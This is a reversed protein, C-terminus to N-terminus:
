ICKLFYRGSFVLIIFIFIHNKTLSYHKCLKWCIITNAMVYFFIHSKKKLTSLKIHNKCNTKICSALCYHNNKLANLCIPTIYNLILYKVNFYYEIFSIIASTYLDLPKCQHLKSTKLLFNKVKKKANLIFKFMTDFQKIHWNMRSIYIKISFLFVSPFLM